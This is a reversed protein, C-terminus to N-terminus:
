KKVKGFVEIVYILYRVGSKRSIQDVDSNSFCLCTSGKRTREKRKLGAQAKALAFHYHHTSTQDQPSLIPHGASVHLPEVERWAAM